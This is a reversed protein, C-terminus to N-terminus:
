NGSFLPSYRRFCLRNRRLIGGKEIFM